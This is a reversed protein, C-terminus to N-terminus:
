HVEEPPQSPSPSSGPEQKPASPQTLNRLYNVIKDETKKDLKEIEKKYKLYFDDLDKVIHTEHPPQDIMIFSGLSSGVLFMGTQAGVGPSVESKKKAQHITLLTKSESAFRTYASLM